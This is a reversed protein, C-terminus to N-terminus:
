TSIINRYHYLYADIGVMDGSLFSAFGISYHLDDGQGRCIDLAGKKDNMMLARRVRKSVGSLKTTAAAATAAM